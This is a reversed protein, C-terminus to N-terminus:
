EHIDIYMSVCVYLCWVCVCVCFCVEGRVLVFPGAYTFSRALFKATLLCEAFILKRQVLCIVTPVVSEIIQM